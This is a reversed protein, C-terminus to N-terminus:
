MLEEINIVPCKIKRGVAERIKEQDYLVTNIVADAEPPDSELSYVPINYINSVCRRDLIGKVKISTGELEKYLCNGLYSWGYIIIEKYGKEQLLVAIAKHDKQELDMWDYLALFNRMLKNYQINKKEFAKYLWILMYGMIM